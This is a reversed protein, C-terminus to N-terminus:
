AVRLLFRGLDLMWSARRWSGKGRDEQGDMTVMRPVGRPAFLGWGDFAIPSTALLQIAIGFFMVLVKELRFLDLQQVQEDEAIDM